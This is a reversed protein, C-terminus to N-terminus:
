LPEKGICSSTSQLGSRCASESPGGRMEQATICVRYEFTREHRVTELKCADLGSLMKATM